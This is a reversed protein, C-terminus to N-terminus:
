LGQTSEAGIEEFLNELGNGEGQLAGLLELPNVGLKQFLASLPKTKTPAVIEQDENVGALTLELNVEAHSPGSEQKTPEVALEAVVRRVIDDDGVYVDVHATKVSKEVEERASRLEASSPLSGIASLLSSCASGEYLKLLSEIGGAVDLEGSIKTTTTGAVDADGENSLNDVFDGVELESAADQCASTGESEEEGGGQRLAEKLTAEAFSFTTPDVEYESGQYGVYASNPLLVLGGEFDVDKGNLRGNAKATLDLKPMSGGEISEFPGRLSVELNGGKKGSAKVRLTADVDASEIGQLTADDIVSQPDADSNGGGGCAVFATAVVILAASAFLFRIRSL